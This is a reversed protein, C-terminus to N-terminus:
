RWDYAVQSSPVHPAAINMEDDAGVHAARKLIQRLMIRLKLVLVIDIISWLSIHIDKIKREHVFNCDRRNLEANNHEFCNHNKM